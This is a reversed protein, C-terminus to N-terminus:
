DHTLALVTTSPPRDSQLDMMSGISHAPIQPFIGSIRARFRSWSTTRALALVDVRIAGARLLCNAAASITAGTTIVDEILLVRKGSIRSPRRCRFLNRVNRLRADHHLKAQPKRHPDHILAPEIPLRQARSVIHAMEYCPHFLRARFTSASSPVPVLLDWTQGPFLTPISDALIAGCIRTLTLSPRYKMAKIFDRQISAYTWIFRQSNPITPHLQCPSCPSISPTSTPSFCRPCRYPILASIEPLIPACRHCLKYGRLNRGCVLCEKPLLVELCGALWSLLPRSPTPTAIIPM